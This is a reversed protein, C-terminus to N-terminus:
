ALVSIARDLFSPSRRLVDRAAELVSPADRVVDRAAELVSPPRHWLSPSAELPSPAGDPISLVLDFDAIMGGFRRAITQRRRWPM